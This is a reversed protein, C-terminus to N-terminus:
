FTRQTAGIAMAALEDKAHDVASSARLAALARDTRTTIDREVHDVAGM